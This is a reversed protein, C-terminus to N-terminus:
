FQCTVEKVTMAGPAPWADGPAKKRDCAGALAVARPRTITRLGLGLRLLFSTRIGSGGGHRTRADNRAVHGQRPATAQSLPPISTHSPGM